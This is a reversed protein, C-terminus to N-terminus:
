RRCAVGRFRESKNGAAARGQFERCPQPGRQSTPPPPPRSNLGSRPNGGGVAGGLAAGVAATHCRGGIIGYDREWKKGTYGVYHPDNKKRWGHAPAWPPPDSLAPPPLFALALVLTSFALIPCAMVSGGSSLGGRM